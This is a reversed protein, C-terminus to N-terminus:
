DQPRRLGNRLHVWRATWGPQRRFRSLKWGRGGGPAEDLALGTSDARFGHKRDARRDVFGESLERANRGPRKAEGELGLVDGAVGRLPQRRGQRAAAGDRRFRHCTWANNDNQESPCAGQLERTRSKREGGRGGSWRGAADPSGRRRGRRGNGHARGSGLADGGFSGRLSWRL